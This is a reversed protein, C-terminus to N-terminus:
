KVTSQLDLAQKRNKIISNSNMKVSKKTLNLKNEIKKIFASIKNMTNKNKELRFNDCESNSLQSLNCEFAEVFPNIVLANLFIILLIILLFKIIM